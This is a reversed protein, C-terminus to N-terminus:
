PTLDSAEGLFGQTQELWTDSSYSTSKQKTQIIQKVGVAIDFAGSACNISGPLAMAVGTAVIPVGVGAESSAVGGVIVGVGPGTEVICKEIKIVGSGINAPGDTILPQEITVPCYNIPVPCYNLTSSNAMSVTKSTVTMPTSGASISNIGLVSVPNSSFNMGIEKTSIDNSSQAGSIVSSIASVGGLPQVRGSTVPSLNQQMTAILPTSGATNIGATPFSQLLLNKQDAAFASAVISAAQQATSQTTSISSIYNNGSSSSSSANSAQTTKSTPLNLVEGPHILAFSGQHQPNAAEFAPISVGNEQALIATTDGSKVIVSSPSAAATNPNSVPQSATVGSSATPSVAQYSATSTTTATSSPSYASLTTTSAGKRLINGQSDYNVQDNPGYGANQAASVKGQLAQLQSQLAAVQASNNSSTQTNASSSSVTQQSTQAQSSSSSQTAASLKVPDGPHILTPDKIQPNLAWLQTATMGNKYAINALTDGSKVTYTSAVSSSSAAVPVQAAQSSTAAKASSTAASVQAASLQTQLSQLQTQLTALQPGTSSPSQTNATSVSQTSSAYTATAPATPRSATVTSAASNGSTAPQNTALMVGSHPDALGVIKSQADNASTAQISALNGSKNVYQYTLMGSNSSATSAAPQYSSPATSGGSNSSYAQTPQPTTGKPLINGQSDYKIQDNAGYGANQAANVKAQLTQVQSQIASLQAANSSSSQPTSVPAPAAPTTSPFNPVSTSATNGTPPTSAQPTAVATRHAVSDATSGAAKNGASISTAPYSLAVQKTPFASAGKSGSYRSVGLSQSIASGRPGVGTTQFTTNLQPSAANNPFFNPRSSAGVVSAHSSPQSTNGPTYKYTDTFHYTDTYHYPTPTYRYTDTYHYPQRASNSYTSQSGFQPTSNQTRDGFPRSNNSNEPKFAYPLNNKSGYGAEARLSQKVQQEFIGTYRTGSQPNNRTDPAFGRASSYTSSNKGRNSNNFTPGANNSATHPLSYQSAAFGTQRGSSSTYNPTRIYTGNYTQTLTFPQQAHASESFGHQDGRANSKSASSAGSPRYNQQPASAAVHSSGSYSPGRTQTTPQYNGSPVTQSSRNRSQNTFNSTRTQAPPNYTSAAPKPAQYSVQPQSVRPTSVQPTQHSARNTSPSPNSARTQAPPNYTPSATRQSQHSVPPASAKPAQPAQQAVHNAPASANSAPAPSASAKPKDANAATSAALMSIVLIVRTKM